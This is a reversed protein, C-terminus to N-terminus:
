IYNKMQLHHYLEDFQTEEDSDYCCGRTSCRLPPMDCACKDPVTKACNCLICRIIPLETDNDDDSSEDLKNNYIIEFAKPSVDYPASALRFDEDVPTYKIKKM